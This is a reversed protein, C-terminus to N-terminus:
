KKKGTKKGGNAGNPLSGHEGYLRRKGSGGGPEYGVEKVTSSSRKGTKKAM